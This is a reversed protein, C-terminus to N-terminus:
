APQLLLMLLVKEGHNRVLLLLVLPLNLAMTGCHQQTLLLQLSLQLLLLLLQCMYLLLRSFTTNVHPPHPPLPQLFASLWKVLLVVLLRLLLRRLLLLLLPILPARHLLLLLLLLVFLVMLLVPTRVAAWDKRLLSPTLFAKGELLQTNIPYQQLAQGGKPDGLRCWHLHVACLCLVARCLM